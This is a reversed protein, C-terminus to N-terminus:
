SWSPARCACGDSSATQRCPHSAWTGEGTPSEGETGTFLRHHHSVTPPRGM